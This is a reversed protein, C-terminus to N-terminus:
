SPCTVISRIVSNNATKNLTWNAGDYQLLGSNNGFYMTGNKGQAIAWNQVDAKYEKPSYNRILPYGDDKNLQAFTLTYFFLSLISPFLFKKM